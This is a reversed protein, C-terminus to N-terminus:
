ENLYWKGNFGTVIAWGRGGRMGVIRTYPNNTGAEDLFYSSYMGVTEGGGGMDFLLITKPNDPLVLNVAPFQDDGPISDGPLDYFVLDANQPIQLRTDYCNNESLSCWSPELLESVGYTILSDPNFGEGFLPLFALLDQAGVFQDNDADPNYPAFQALSLTSVLLAALTLLHKM